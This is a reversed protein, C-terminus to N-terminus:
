NSNATTKSLLVLGEEDKAALFPKKIRSAGQSKRGGLPSTLIALKALCGLM